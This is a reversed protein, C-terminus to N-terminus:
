KLSRLANNQLVALHRGQTVTENRFSEVAQGVSNTKGALEVMLVPQWAIACRSENTPEGTNSDVGALQTYWACREIVGEKATECESGLPCIIKIDM